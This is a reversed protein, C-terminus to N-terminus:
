LSGNILAAAGYGTGDYLITTSAGQSALLSMLNAMANTPENYNGLNGIPIDIVAYAAISVPSDDSGAVTLDIRLLSRRRKTTGSGVESHKVTIRHPLNPQEGSRQFVVVSDGSSRRIFELETGASVKVENTTLNLPLAM